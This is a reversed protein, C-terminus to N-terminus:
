EYRLAVLPDVRTARRAPLYCALMVVAGLLLGMVAFTAPDLSDVGFLLGGLFRTLGVAGAAGAALGAIGLAMGQGLVLRLVNRPQAGIAMRIGFEATRQVVSYAMVGYIGLAALLVAVSSFLSLLLTLFRPRARALDLVGDMTRPQAIPISPDLEALQARAPALLRMPDGAARLAVYMARPPFQGSQALPLFIETGTPKDIGANKVDAVVGVVTRWPDRFGPRIRKGLASQDPWFTRAMTHNIVVVPPAGDGDREDLLRGELLPIAATSFFRPGVIQYYDVNQMPGGERRVFGEIETDNADLERIPPLGTMLTVSQAGPLAALRQELRSWFSRVAASEPYAASPLALRFTLLGSACM